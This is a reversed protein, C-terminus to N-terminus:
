RRPSPASTTSADHSQQTSRLLEHVEPLPLETLKALQQPRLGTDTLRTLVGGLVGRERRIAEITQTLRDLHAHVSDLEMMAEVAQTPNDLLVALLRDRADPSHVIGSEQEPASAGQGPDPAGQEPTGGPQTVSTQAPSIVPLVQTTSVNAPTHTTSVGRAPTTVTDHGAHRGPMKNTPQPIPTTKTDREAAAQAVTVRQAAPVTGTTDKETPDSAPLEPTNVARRKQILRRIGLVVLLLAVAMLTAIVPFSM